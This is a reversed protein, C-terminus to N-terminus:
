NGNIKIERAAAVMYLNNVASVYAMICAKVTDTSSGRGNASLGSRHRVTVQAEGVSDSAKSTAAIAFNELQLNLNIIRQMALYAADIPGNGVAADCHERGDATVLVVRATPGGVIETGCEIQYSALTYRQEPAAAVVDAVLAEIDGDSVEKKEDCLTKFAAFAQNLEEKELTYGLQILRDAFAHRGSHKGLVM